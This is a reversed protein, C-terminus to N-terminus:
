DEESFAEDINHMEPRKDSDPALVPKGQPKIVLKGLIEEFRKKGLLKTMATIGLIKHEFPDYGAKSVAAIAQEEDSYRRNSRGEVVKFGPYKTGAIAQRLAYEKIDDAWSVFGSLKPLLSAIEYVTLTEPEKFADGVMDLYYEARTRCTDKVKCFRCHDGAAFEGEGKMALKAAPALTNEAWSLLEEKTTDWTDYHERRPQFITLRIKQIDYLGDYLDIGGLAYCSLQTNEKADVLVGVGFKMDIVQLYGDTVILGDATGFGQPVWKSFDVRQEVCVVPDACSKKAETVQELFFDRYSEAADQMESNYVDLNETPNQCERGLAELVLYECLSHACTGELAYPSAREQAEANLKASPPCHTWRDSSSASLYAHIDPM